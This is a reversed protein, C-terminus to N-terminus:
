GTLDYLGPGPPGIPYVNAEEDIRFDILVPGPTQQAFDMAPGIEDASTVLRGPLGYAEAVKVCDPMDHLDGESRVGGYFDDQFQRVMGLSFNNLLVIKVDLKHKVAVSLEQATMGCGGGGAGCWVDKDPRAVKAGIAAPFAFGM